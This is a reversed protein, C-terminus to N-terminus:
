YRCMVPVPFCEWPCIGPASHLSWSPPPVDRAFPDLSQLFHMGGCWGCSLLSKGGQSVSAMLEGKELGEDFFLTQEAKRFLRQEIPVSPGPCSRPKPGQGLLTPLCFYRRKGKNPRPLTLRSHPSAELRPHFCDPAASARCSYAPGRSPPPKTNSMTEPPPKLSCHKM